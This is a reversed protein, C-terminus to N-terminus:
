RERNRGTRWLTKSGKGAKMRRLDLLEMVRHYATGRSAGTLPEEEKLFAPLLPVVEPEEYLVEGM